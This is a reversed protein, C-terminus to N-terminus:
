EEEEIEGVLKKLEEEAKAADPDIEIGFIRKAQIRVAARADWDTSDGCLGMNHGYCFRVISEADPMQRCFEDIRAKYREYNAGILDLKGLFIDNAHICTIKGIQTHDSTTCIEIEAHGGGRVSRVIGSNFDCRASRFWIKKGIIDGLCNAAVPKKM